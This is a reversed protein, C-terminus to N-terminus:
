AGAHRPRWLQSLASHVQLWQSRRTQLLRRGSTVLRYYKRRRGAPSRAWRSTVCGQDDLWHLVAYLMGETWAIEGGSLERIRQIIAYGYSEGEELLSLILPVSSAAVLEKDLKM